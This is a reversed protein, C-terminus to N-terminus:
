MGVYKECMLIFDYVKGLFLVWLDKLMNYISVENLIYYRLWKLFIGLM